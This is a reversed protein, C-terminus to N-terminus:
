AYTSLESLIAWVEDAEMQAWLRIRDGQGHLQVRLERTIHGGGAGPQFVFIGGTGVFSDLQQDRVSRRVDRIANEEWYANKASNAAFEVYSAGSTLRSKQAKVNPTPRRNDPVNRQDLNRSVDSIDLQNTDLEEIDILEALVERVQVIAQRHEEGEIPAAVFLGALGLDVHAEFRTIARHEVFRWARYEITDLGEQRQFDKDAVRTWAASIEQWVMRLTDDAFSISTLTPQEPFELIRPANWLHALGARDVQERLTRENLRSSLSPALRYLYVHQNGWGEVQELWADFHELRLVGRDIADNLNREFDDKKEGIRIDLSRLLEKIFRNGQTRIIGAALRKLDAIEDAGPPPLDSGESSM